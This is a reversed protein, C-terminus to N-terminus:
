EDPPEPPRYGPPLDVAGESGPQPPVHEGPSEDRHLEDALARIGDRVQPDPEDALALDVPRYQVTPSTIKLDDGDWSVSDDVFWLRQAPIQVEGFTVLRVDGTPLMLARVNTDLVLALAAVEDALLPRQNREVLGCTQPYWHYGLQNMRRAVSAQTLRLRARQARINQRALATIEVPQAAVREDL